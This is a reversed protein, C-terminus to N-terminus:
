VGAMRLAGFVTLLCLVLLAARLIRAGQTRPEVMGWAFAWICVILVLRLAFSLVGRVM